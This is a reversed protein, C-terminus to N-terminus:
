SFVYLLIDRLREASFVMVISIGLFPSATLSLPCFKWEACMGQFEVTTVSDSNDWDTILRGLTTM